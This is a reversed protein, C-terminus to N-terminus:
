CRFFFVALPYNKEEFKKYLKDTNKIIDKKTIYDLDLGAITILESLTYNEVNLDIDAM